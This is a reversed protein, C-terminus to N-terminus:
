EEEEEDSYFLDYFEYFRDFQEDSSLRVYKEAVDFRAELEDYMPYFVEDPIDDANEYSDLMPVMTNDWYNELEAIFPEYLVESKADRQAIYDDIRDNYVKMAEDSDAKKLGIIEDNENIPVKEGLMTYFEDFRQDAADYYALFDDADKVQNLFTAEEDFFTNFLNIAMDKKNECSTLMLGVM